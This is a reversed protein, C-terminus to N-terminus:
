DRKKTRGAGEGYRGGRKRGMGRWAAGGGEGRGRRRGQLPQGGRVGRAGASRGAAAALARQRRPPALVAASPGRGRAGHLSPLLFSAGELEGPGVPVTCLATERWLRGQSLAILSIDM